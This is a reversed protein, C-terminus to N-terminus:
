IEARREGDACFWDDRRGFCFAIECDEGAHVCQSCWVIEPVQTIHGQEDILYRQEVTGQKPDIRQLAEDRLSMIRESLNENM